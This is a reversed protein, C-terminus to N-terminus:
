TATASHRIVLLRELYVKRRNTVHCAATWSVILRWKGPKNPKPIVGFRNYMITAPLQEASFPGAVDGCAVEADLCRQVVEPHTCASLLNSAAPRCRSNSHFGIRVGDELGKLLSDVWACM